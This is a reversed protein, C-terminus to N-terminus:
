FINLALSGDSAVLFSVFAVFRGIMERVETNMYLNQGLISSVLILLM